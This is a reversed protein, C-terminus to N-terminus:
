LACSESLKRRFLLQTHRATIGRHVTRDAALYVSLGTGYRYRDSETRTNKHELVSLLETGASGFSLVFRDNTRRACDGGRYQM